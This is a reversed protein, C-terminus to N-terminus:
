ASIEATLGSLVSTGSLYSKDEKEDSGTESLSSSSSLAVEIFSERKELIFSNM